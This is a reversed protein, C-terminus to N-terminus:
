YTLLFTFYILSLVLLVAFIYFAISYKDKIKPIEAKQYNLPFPKIGQEIIDRAILMDILEAKSLDEYIKRQRKEEFPLVQMYNMDSGEIFNEEFSELEGLFSTGYELYDYEKSLKGAEELAEHETSIIKSGGFYEKLVNKREMTDEPFYTINDIAQAHIVRYGEPFKAIYIGNDASM